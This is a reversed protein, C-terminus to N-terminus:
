YLSISHHIMQGTEANIRCFLCMAETFNIRFFSDIWYESSQEKLEIKTFSIHHASPYKQKIFNEVIERVQQESM